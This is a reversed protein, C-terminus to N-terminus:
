KLRASWNIDPIRSGDFVVDGWVTKKTPGDIIVVIFELPEGFELVNRCLEIFNEIEAPSPINDIGHRVATQSRVMELYLFNTTLEDDLRYVRM